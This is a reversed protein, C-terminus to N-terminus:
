QGDEGSWRDIVFAVPVVNIIVPFVAPNNGIVQDHGRRRWRRDLFAIEGETGVNAVVGRRVDPLPRASVLPYNGGDGPIGPCENHGPRYLLVIEVPVLKPDLADAVAPRVLVVECDGI